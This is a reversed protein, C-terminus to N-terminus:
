LWLEDLLSSSHSHCFLFFCKKKKEKVAQASKCHWDKLLSLFVFLVSPSSSVVCNVDMGAELLTQVTSHHGNRAALHLPTHLRTHSTMLNPHASVLMRVVQLRGYLAALDLPTEQRNNRMTPDTLEQLLVSVVDTHGYQAACHLPTEREHNQQNVRGHSPGHHILIRVIDVDGRWAALHLPFCGKSDALNPSAESQLLKLVVERHGNLSAHHLPTYGSSDTCNVNVGKWMLCVQIM